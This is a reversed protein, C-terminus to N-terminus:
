SVLHFGDLPSMDLKARPNINLSKMTSIRERYILSSKFFNAKSSMISNPSVLQQLFHVDHRHLVAMISCTVMTM